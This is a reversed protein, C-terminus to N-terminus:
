ARKIRLVAGSSTGYRGGVIACYLAVPEGDKMLLQPREFRGERDIGIPPEDFYAHSNLFAIGPESWQVGDASEFMLGYEHNYFGMDRMIMKFGGDADMYVYADECQMNNGYISLDVVPNGEFKQYPGTISKAKALGYRRNTRLGVDATAPRTGQKLDFEWDDQNWAKYYLWFEGNPHQLLAPNTSNLSDWDNRNDSPNLL